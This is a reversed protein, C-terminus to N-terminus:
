KCGGDSEGKDLYSMSPYPYTELHVLHFSFMVPGYKFLSGGTMKLAGHMQISSTDRAQQIFWYVNKRKVFLRLIM